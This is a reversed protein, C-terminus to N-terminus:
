KVALYIKVETEEFSKADDYYLDYDATYSREIGSAWIHQWAEGVKEPFKGTLTYIQYKGQPITVGTFGEKVHALTSVKCGMVTTYFGTHDTEYDTYVSYIDDSVKDEIQQLLGEQMIRAWLGGIDTQSQNNQNTTRVSIGVIYFENQRTIETNKIM